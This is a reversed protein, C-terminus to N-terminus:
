FCDYLASTGELDSIEVDASLTQQWRAFVFRNLLTATEYRYLM